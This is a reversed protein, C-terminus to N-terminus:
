DLGGPVEIRLRADIGERSAELEGVGEGLPVTELGLPESEWTSFDTRAVAAGHADEVDSLALDSVSRVEDLGSAVVFRDDDLLGFVIQPVTFRNDGEDLGTLEYLDEGELRRVGIDGQRLLPLAGPVLPADPAVLLLAVLGKNGLSQLGRLIGPLRPALRPLLERMRDPDDLESVAAFSGDPWAVSASPGNFQKLVEDEFSIGLDKEALEVEAVFESEPWAARALQALFVTTRSQNRNGSSIAGDEDGAQPADDGTALPLDEDRLDDPRTTLHARATVAHNELRISASVAELAQIWPVDVDVDLEEVILRPDGALRLLAPGDDEGFAAPDFSQEPRELTAAGGSISMLLTDGDVRHALDLRRALKEALEGDPTEIAALLRADEEPGWEALVLDEGLLPEVDRAFNIESGDFFSAALTRISGGSGQRLVPQLLAELRQLQEGQLDTPVIAVADADAPVYKLAAPGTATPPDDGCGGLLAVFVLCLAVRLRQM